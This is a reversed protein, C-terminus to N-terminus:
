GRPIGSMVHEFPEHCLPFSHKVTHTFLSYTLGIGDQGRSGPIQWNPREVVEEKKMKLCNTKSMLLSLHAM